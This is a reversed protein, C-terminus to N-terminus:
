DELYRAHPKPRKLRTSKKNIKQVEWGAQEESEVDAHHVTKLEFRSKRRRAASRLSKDDSILPSIFTSTQQNVVIDDVFKRQEL